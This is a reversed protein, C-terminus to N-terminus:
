SEGRDKINPDFESFLQHSQRLSANLATHDPTKRKGESRLFKLIKETPLNGVLHDDAFPCGGYGGLSGEFHQTGLEYLTKIKEEADQSRAHLHMSLKQLGVHKKVMKLLTQIDKLSALGQTDALSLHEFSLSRLKTIHELVQTPHYSEQYPNGFAMSLYVVMEQSPLIIDRVRKLVQYAEHINKKTNRQQFIESVSLPYGIYSLEPHKKAQRAGQENVVIALLQTPSNEWAKRIQKLVLSTDRTQPIWKPSVFSGADLIEFGLGLIKKLYQVKKETPIFFDIGQWADRPSETIKIEHRLETGTIEPM